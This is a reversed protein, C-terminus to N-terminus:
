LSFEMRRELSELFSHLGQFDYYVYKILCVRHPDTPRLYFGILRHPPEHLWHCLFLPQQCSPSLFLTVYFYPFLVLFFRFRRPLFSFHFPPICLALWYSLLSPALFRSSCLTLSITALFSLFFCLYLTPPSAVTRPFSSSRLLFSLSHFLFAPFVTSQYHTQFISFSLSCVRPFCSFLRFHAGSFRRRFVLSHCSSLSFPLSLSLSLSLPLQYPHTGTARYRRQKQETMLM